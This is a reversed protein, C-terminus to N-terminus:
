STGVLFETRLGPSIIVRIPSGSINNSYRSFNSGSLVLPENLTTRQTNLKTELNRIDDDIKSLEEQIKRDREKLQAIVRKGESSTELVRQSNIVGVKLMQQAFSLSVFFVISLIILLVNRSSRWRM